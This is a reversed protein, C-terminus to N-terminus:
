NKSQIIKKFNDLTFHIKSIHNLIPLSEIEYKFYKAHMKIVYRQFFTYIFIFLYIYRYRLLILFM